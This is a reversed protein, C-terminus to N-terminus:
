AKKAALRVIMQEVQALQITDGMLVGESATCMLGGKFFLVVPLPFSQLGVTKMCGLAIQYNQNDQEGESHQFIDIAVFRQANGAKQALPLLQELLKQSAPNRSAFFLVVVTYAQSAKIVVQDFADFGNICAFGDREEIKVPVFHQDPQVAQSVAVKETSQSSQQQSFKIVDLVLPQRPVYAILGGVCGVVLLACLGKLNKM